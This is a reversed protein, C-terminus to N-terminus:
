SSNNVKAKARAKRNKRIKRIILFVVIIIVLVIIMWAKSPQKIGASIAEKQTYVKIPFEVNQTKANNEFDEYQITAILNVSAKNFIVDFSATQFDDSNVSGIYVKEESLLKYGNPQVSVSLFKIEGLGQNIVKLSIKGKEGIVPNSASVIFDLNLKSNVQVGIAGTKTVKTSNTGYYYVLEYPINYDGPQLNNAAKINFNFEEKDDEQIEDVGDESSGVPSFQLAGNTLEKFLLTLSVDNVDYNLTNKIDITITTEQSPYLADQDVNDIIMASALSFCGMALTIMMLLKIINTKM